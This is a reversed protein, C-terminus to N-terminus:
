GPEIADGCYGYPTHWRGNTGTKLRFIGKVRNASDRWTVSIPSRAAAGSGYITCDGIFVNFRTVATSGAFTAASTGIILALTVSATLSLLFGFRRTAVVSIGRWVSASRVRVPQRLRHAPNHM